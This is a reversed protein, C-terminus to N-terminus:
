RLSKRSCRVPQPSATTRKTSLQDHEANGRTELRLEECEISSARFHGGCYRESRADDIRARHLCALQQHRERAAGGTARVAAEEEELARRLHYKREDATM